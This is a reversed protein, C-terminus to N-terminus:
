THKKERESIKYRKIMEDIFEDKSRPKKDRLGALHDQWQSDWQRCDAIFEYWIIREVKVPPQVKKKWFMLRM